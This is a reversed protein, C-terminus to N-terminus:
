DKLEFRVESNLKNVQQFLYPQYDLSKSEQDPSILQYQITVLDTVEFVSPIVIEYGTVNTKEGLIFILDYKTFDVTMLLDSCKIPSKRTMEELLTELEQQSEILRKQVGLAETNVIYLPAKCLEQHEISIKEPKGAVNIVVCSTVLGLFIVGSVILKIQNRLKMRFVIYKAFNKFDIVM